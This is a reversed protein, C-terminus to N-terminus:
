LTKTVKSLLRPQDPDRNRARAIREAAGYFTQIIAIPDLLPHVTAAYDLRGPQLKDKSVCHLRAGAARLRDATERNTASAADNPAFMLVPFGTEILALPGHMVEATSYAEAHLNSTEKLKLAAEGTMPLCPGRGLVFLSRAEVVSQEWTEWGISGAIRLADPLRECADILDRAGAWEAAIRAGLAASAIFTKTAAVSVERGAGLELCLDAAKALPSDGHNTLLVVPAGARKAEAVFALIDPAAGSQSIAVVICDRLALPRRYISVVSAGVSACPVGLLVEVLSKFYGAAHDSSGRAVTIIHSPGSVQLMRRLEALPTACSHMLRAVVEPAEATERAMATLGDAM